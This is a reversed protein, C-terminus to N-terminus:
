LDFLDYIWNKCLEVWMDTNKSRIGAEAQYMALDNSVSIGHSGKQFVHVEYPLDLADMALAMRLPHDSPVYKDYRTHWIFLPPTHKGVYNVVDLEPTLDKAIKGLFDPRYQEPDAVIDTSSAAGYALVAANPRNGGEPIDLRECLGPTNWQTAGFAAVGAGASFGMVVIAESDIGWSDANKRVEWIAWSIEDLPNPYVSYDGISYNLVFACFGEKMFTLAVPEGESDSLMGWAGGPMIIIAPRKKLQFGHELVDPIYTKLNVRGDQTYNITQHLM